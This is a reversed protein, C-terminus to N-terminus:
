EAICMEEVRRKREKRVRMERVFASGEVGSGGEKGELVDGARVGRESVEDQSGM